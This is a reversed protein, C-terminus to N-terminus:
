TMFPRRVPYDVTLRGISTVVNDAYGEMVSFVHVLDPELEKIFAERLLEALSERVLQHTTIAPPLPLM